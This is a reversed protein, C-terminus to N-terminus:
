LSALPGFVVNALQFRASTLFCRRSLNCARELAGLTGGSLFSEAQTNGQVRSCLSVERRWLVRIKLDCRYAPGDDGCLPLSFGIRPGRERLPPNWARGKRPM